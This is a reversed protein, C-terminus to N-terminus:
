RFSQCKLSIFFLSLLLYSCNGHLRSDIRRICSRLFFCLSFSFSLFFMSRFDWTEHHWLPIRECIERSSRRRFAFSLLVYTRGAAPNRYISSAASLSVQFFLRRPIHAISSFLNEVISKQLLPRSSNCCLDVLTDRRLYRSPAASIIRSNRPSNSWEIHVRTTFFCWPCFGCQM